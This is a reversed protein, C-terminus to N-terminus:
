EIAIRSNAPLEPEDRKPVTIHLVGSEYKCRIEEPRLDGVHFSRSASGYYRERRLYRGEQDQEDKDLGKAARITLIGDKVDLKIDGKDFGPLEAELVFKDGADRIDTRFAPLSANSGRFFNRTFNDFTDFLNDDSREFPLMGFM